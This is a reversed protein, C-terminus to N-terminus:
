QVGLNGSDVDASGTRCSGAAVLSLLQWPGLYCIRLFLCRHGEWYRNETLWEQLEAVAQLQSQLVSPLQGLPDTYRTQDVSAILSSNTMGLLAVSANRFGSWSAEDNGEVLGLLIRDTSCLVESLDQYYIYYDVGVLRQTVALLSLIFALVTTFAASVSGGLNPTTTKRACCCASQRVRRWRITCLSLYIMLALISLIPLCLWGGLWELWDGDDLLLKQVQETQAAHRLNLLRNAYWARTPLWRALASAAGPCQASPLGQQPEPLPEM